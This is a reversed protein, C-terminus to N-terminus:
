LDFKLSLETPGDVAFRVLVHREGREWDEHKGGNVRVDWPVPVLNLLAEVQGRCGGVNLVFGERQLQYSLDVPAGSAGLLTFAGDGGPYIDLTLPDLPKQDVYSVAPGMPILAGERVFLPLTDLPAHVTIWGPGSSVQKSWYDIWRGKPLYV